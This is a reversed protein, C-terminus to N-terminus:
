PFPVMCKLRSEIIEQLFPTSYTNELNIKHANNMHMFVNPSLYKCSYRAHQTNLNNLYLYGNLSLNKATDILRRASLPEFTSRTPRRISSVRTDAILQYTDYNNCNLFHRLYPDIIHTTQTHDHSQMFRFTQWLEIISKELAISLHDSYAMGACYKVRVNGQQCNGYCLLVCAGPFRSDTLDLITLEEALKLKRLLPLSRSQQLLQCAQHFEIKETCSNTLWFRLLFQREFSEKLAGLIAQEVTLHVSCGCTDRTPYIDNDAENNSHSISICATPVSCPTLNDIRFARTLDFAHGAIAPVSTKISTQSFAKVFSHCEEPSLTKQLPATDDIPVDLYFHKREFHEGLAAAYVDSTWGSSSGYTRWRSGSEVSHPMPTVANPRLHVFDAIGPNHVENYNNM